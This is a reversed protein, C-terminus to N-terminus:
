PCYPASFPNPRCTRRGIWQGLVKKYDTPHGTQWIGRDAENADRESFLLAEHVPSPACGFLTYYASWGERVIRQQLLEGDAFVLSLWRGFPDEHPAGPKQPDEEVAIVIERAARLYNTVVDGTKIGFATTEDGHSEETNVWLFRVIRDSAAPFDFHATDGDVGRRFIVKAPQLFGTSPLQKPTVRPATCAAADLPESPEEAESGADGAAASTTGKNPSAPAPSVILSPGDGCAILSVLSM